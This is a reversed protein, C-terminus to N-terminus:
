RMEDVISDPEWVLRHTYGKCEIGDDKHVYEFGDCRSYALDFVFEVRGASLKDHRNNYDLMMPKIQDVAHHACFPESKLKEFAINAYVLLKVQKMEDSNAVVEALKKFAPDNRYLCCSCRGELAALYNTRMEAEYAVQSFEEYLRSLINGIIFYPWIMRYNIV